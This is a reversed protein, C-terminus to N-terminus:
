RRVKAFLFILLGEAARLSPSEVRGGSEDTYLSLCLRESARYGDWAIVVPRTSRHVESSCGAAQKHVGSNVNEFQVRPVDQKQSM